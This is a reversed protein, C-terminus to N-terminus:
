MEIPQEDQENSTKSHVLRVRVNFNNSPPLGYVEYLTLTLGFIYILCRNM